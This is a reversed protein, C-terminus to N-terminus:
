ALKVLLTCIIEFFLGVELWFVWRERNYLAILGYAAIIFFLGGNFLEWVFASVAMLIAAGYHVKGVFEDRFQPSAAVLLMSFCAFFACFEARESVELWPVLVCATLFVVFASFKWRHKVVYYTASLSEPFGHFTIYIALYVAFAVLAAFVSYIM